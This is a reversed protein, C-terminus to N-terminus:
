AADRGHVQGFHDLDVKRIRYMKGLRKHRLAARGDRDIQCNDRVYSYSARLYAASDYLDLVEPWDEFRPWKRWMEEQYERSQKNPQSM